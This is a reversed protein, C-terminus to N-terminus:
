DPFIVKTNEAEKPIRVSLVPLKAHNAVGETISGWLMHKIGSRGHTEMAILDADVEEAFHHIGNEIKDDNFINITHDVELKTAEIFDEMLKLSYRTTEFHNPTVVKLLHIRSDFVKAFEVISAFVGYSEEFFNSAFVMDKVKFNEHRSKITLVPIESTRIVREANSGIFYEEAGSVGHSGMVIMDVNKEKAMESVSEYVSNYKVIVEVDLDQLFPQQRMTAFKKQVLKGLFIGEATNHWKENNSASEYTPLNIIHMIYLKSGSDRALSAGVETAYTACKSFDTPVLIVGM